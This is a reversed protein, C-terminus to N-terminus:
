KDVHAFIGWFLPTKDNPNKITVIAKWLADNETVFQIDHRFDMPVLIEDSNDVERTDANEFHGRISILLQVPGTPRPLKEAIKYYFFSTPLKICSAELYRGESKLKFYDDPSVLLQRNPKFEGDPYLNYCTMIGETNADYVGSMSCFTSPNFFNWLDNFNKPPDYIIGLNMSILEEVIPNSKVTVPNLFRFLYIVKSKMQLGILQGKNAPVSTGFCDTLIYKRDAQTPNTLEDVLIISTVDLMGTWDDMYANSSPDFLESKINPTLVQGVVNSMLEFPTKDPRSIMYPLTEGKFWVSPRYQNPVRVHLVCRLAPARILPIDYNTNILITSYGSVLNKFAELEGKFFRYYRYFNHVFVIIKSTGVERAIFIFAYPGESLITKDIMFPWADDLKFGMQESNVVNSFEKDMTSVTGSRKEEM